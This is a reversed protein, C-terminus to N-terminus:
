PAGCRAGTSRHRLQVQEADLDDIARTDSSERVALRLDDGREVLARALHAGIFGTAGTLLTKAMARALRRPRDPYAAARIGGTATTM